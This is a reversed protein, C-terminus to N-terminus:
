QSFSNEALCILENALTSTVDIGTLKELWLWLGQPNLELFVYENKPTLIM